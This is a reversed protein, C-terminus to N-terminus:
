NSSFGFPYTKFSDNEFVLNRQLKIKNSITFSQTFDQFTLTKLDLKTKKNEISTHTYFNRQLNQLLNNYFDSNLLEKNQESSLKLGSIKHITKLHNDKTLYTLTYNKAGLSFYNLIKGPIEFKFDGLAPSIVLPFPENNPCSFILSDCDVQFIKIQDNLSLKMIHKHIIERAYATISASLYVNAKLNPAKVIRKPKINVCCINENMVTIDNIIEGKSLLNELENQDSIFIFRQMSNKQGFKGFFSNQALKYFNRKGQNPKISQVTFKTESPLNLKKNLYNICDIKSQLNTSLEFCNSYKTKFYNLKEVFPKLIYEHEFYVHCEFINIITYGLCLAYEIESLMYSGIIFRKSNPHQCNKSKSECCLRCLTNCNQGSKTRYILFPFILNKPPLISLLIAGSVRKSDYYFKNEIVVLKELSEGILVEYKGIPFANTVAVESYLGNIDCFYLSEDPHDQSIWKLEYVDNYSGRYCNRPILRELPVKVYHNKLFAQYEKDTAKLLKIQCEWIETVKSISENNAILRLMQEEREKNCTEFTKGNIGITNKNAKKNISCSDKLCGHFYCGLVMICEGTSESYADPYAEKFYKQGNPNNFATMFKKDPYKYELFSVYEHELRSVYKGPKGYENAVAYIPQKNLYLIKFLRFVAGGITINPRNFPNFLNPLNLNFSLQFVFFEHLFKLMATVFLFTKQKVFTLLEKRFNWKQSLSGIFQTLGELDISDVMFYKIHPISACYNFNERQLLKLPFYHRFYSIEFQDALLYENGPIYNSSPLLRLGVDKFDLLIISSNHKLVEPCIGYKCLIRLIYLMTLNDEDQIIVVSNFFEQSLLLKLLRCEFTSDELKVYNLDNKCAAKFPREKNSDPFYNFYFSNKEQSDAIGLDDGIIYESFLGRSSDELYVIALLPDSLDFSDSNNNYSFLLNLFALRPHYNVSKERRLKCLHPEIKIEHCFKCLLTKNCVHLEKIKESCYNNYKYTFKGCRLCKYGFFGKSNCLRKHAKKCSVTHLTVNCIHCTESPGESLKSDCFYNLKDHHFTDTTMLYRHCAFCSPLEKCFHRYVKSRFTKKCVFCTKGNQKFFADISKIFVIHDENFKKFLFIPKLSSDYELPYRIILKSGKNILGEFIFFQCHYELHLTQLTQLLNYPGNSALNSKEILDILHSHLLKLAYNQKSVNKSQAYSMYLFDKVKNKYYEHQTIGLITCVLLCKEKFIDQNKITGCPVDIAWKARFEESSHGVHLKGFNKKKLKPKTRNIASHQASLIKLYVKFTKDLELTKNSVLFQNLMSLLRDVM